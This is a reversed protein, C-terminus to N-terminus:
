YMRRRSRMRKSKQYMEELRQATELPLRVSSLSKAPISITNLDPRVSVKPLGRNIWQRVVKEELRSDRFGSNFRKKMHSILTRDAFVARPELTRSEDAHVSEFLNGTVEDSLLHGRHIRRMLELYHLFEHSLIAHIAGKLGYAVLPASIQVVVGFEGESVLPVTRAFLVGYGFQSAPSIIAAPEVYAPPFNLGSTREIRDIGPIVMKAFRDLVMDCIKDSLKGELRAKKLRFLPDM